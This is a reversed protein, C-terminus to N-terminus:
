MLDIVSSSFNLILKGFKFDHTLNIIKLVCSIHETLILEVQSWLKREDREIEEDTLSLKEPSLIIGHNPLSRSSKGKYTYQTSTSATM